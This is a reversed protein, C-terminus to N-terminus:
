LRETFKGSLQWMNGTGASVAAFVGCDMLLNVMIREGAKGLLVLMEPWPTRKLTDAHHNRFVPFLGPISPKDGASDGQRQVNLGTSKRFGDCLLHKPRAAGRRDRSFLLWISFDVIKM